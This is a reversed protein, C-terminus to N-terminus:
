GGGPRPAALRDTTDSSPLKVLRFRWVQHGSRGTEQWYDDVRYLGDYRYALKPALASARAGPRVGRVLRVPRSTLCNRALALNGLALAQDAVQAGTKQSRGGHGTYIVEDGFDEDDEYAGGTLVVSDAGEDQGGSIGARLPAHVGSHSLAARSAFVTSEVFGAIHGFTRM